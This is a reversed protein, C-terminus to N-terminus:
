RLVVMKQTDIYTAGPLSATLRYVYMGSSVPDGNSNTRDWEITHVGSAFPRNMLTKMKRGLLDFVSLEVTGASPISFRMSTRETVPNPFPPYLEFSGVSGVESVSVLSPELNQLTETWLKQANDAFRQLNQASTSAILAFAIEVDEGPELRFPGASVLVSVDDEDVSETQIGSSMFEWKEQDTFGDGGSRSDFIERNEISRYSVPATTTLLKTGFLLIPDEESSQVIGMRQGPDYRAYDGGGDTTLDWDCFLGLYLNNIPFVQFNEQSVIYRLIIFNGNENGSDAYSEQQIRLGEREATGLGKLIVRGNETTVQGKLIGFKSDTVREFDSDQEGPIENRISNLIVNEGLAVLVGGEFLWNLGFYRFGQGESTEEFGTWGINGEDTLSMQVVGTDHTVKNVTFEVLEADSYEQGEVTVRLFLKHDNPVAEAMSFSFRATTQQGSALAGVPQSQDILTVLPDDTSITVTVGSADALYNVLQLSLDITEGENIAGDNGDDSFSVRQVRISPVSFTTLARGANIRGKGLFGSFTDDNVADISDSTVRIQERVQDLTWEPQLTRVLAALGVVVPTSFSTGTAGATYRGRPLTSNLNVGPAFVDVSVGYNSFRAKTDSNKETAGVVLVGDYAAPYSPALDFNVGSGQVGGTNGAPAVILTGRETAIRVAERGLFSDPGRWSINIVDAGLLAAYIIGEFGFCVANDTFECGANIPVFEANWSIGTLGRSNDTVASVIGAVQTGHEGNGPTRSLGTPDNSQNAFNWGNIDDILSNGDDDIGNEIEGPNTWVNDLLDEHRWDVGGDVIAVLINGDSARVVDWAEPMNIQELHSMQLFQPDNPTRLPEVPVTSLTYIYRPEAYEVGPEKSLLAAVIAPEMPADFRVEYLSSLSRLSASNTHALASSSALGSFLPRMESVQIQRAIAGSMISVPDAGRKGNVGSELKLIVVGPVSPARKKSAQHTDQGRVPIVGPLLLTILM